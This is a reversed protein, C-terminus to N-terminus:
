PIPPPGGRQGGPPGMKVEEWKTFEAGTLTKWASRQAETLVSLAQKYAAAKKAQREQWTM